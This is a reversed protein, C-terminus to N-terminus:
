RDPPATPDDRQFPLNASPVEVWDGEIVPGRRPQRGPGGSAGQRAALRTARGYLLGRVPPILLLLAMLDSLFGPLILLVGALALCAADFLERM